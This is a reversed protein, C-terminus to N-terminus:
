LESSYSSNLGSCFTWSNPMKIFKSVNAFCAKYGPTNNSSMHLVLPATHVIYSPAQRLPLSPDQQSQQFDSWWPLLAPSSLLCPCTLPLHFIITSWYSYYSPSVPSNITLHKLVPRWHLPVLLPSVPRSRTSQFILHATNNQIRKLKEHFNKPIRVFLPNCYVLPLLVTILLHSNQDCWSSSLSIVSIQRSKVHVHVCVCVCVCVCVHARACVCVSCVHVCFCVHVCACKHEQKFEFQFQIIIQRKMQSWNSMWVSKWSSSESELDRKLKSCFFFVFFCKSTTKNIKNKGNKTHTLQTNLTRTVHVHFIM